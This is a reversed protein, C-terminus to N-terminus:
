MYRKVRTKRVDDVELVFMVADFIDHVSATRNVLKTPFFVEWQRANFKLELIMTLCEITTFGGLKELIRVFGFRAM